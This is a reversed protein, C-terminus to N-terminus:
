PRRTRPDLWRAVGDSILNFSVLLVTYFVTLGMIMPYNRNSISYVFDRGLGPIDFILEVVFSGTMVAAAQPGLFALVPALIHRLAHVAVIRWPAVGKARATRLFDSRLVESLESRILRALYATPLASLSIAPLVASAAGYWGSGPFLRLKLSFVYLLLSALIFSPIAVGASAATANIRDPWGGPKLAAAIGLPFALTLSIALAIVGLVASVPFRQAIVEGVTVGPQDYSPGFRGTAAAGLYRAYQKWAPEDLHYYHEIAQQVAAPIKRDRSFPGGPTMRMLIFTATAVAWAVVIVIAASRALM